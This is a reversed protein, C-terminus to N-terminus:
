LLSKHEYDSGGTSGGGGGAFYQSAKCTKGLPEKEEELFIRRQPSDCTTKKDDLTKKRGAEYGSGRDKLSPSECAKPEIRKVLEDKM